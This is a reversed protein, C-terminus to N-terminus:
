YKNYPLQFVVDIVFLYEGGDEANQVHLTVILVKGIVSCVM